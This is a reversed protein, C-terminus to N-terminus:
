PQNRLRQRTAETSYDLWGREIVNRCRAQLADLVKLRAELAERHGPDAALAMETLHLAEVPQGAQVHERARKVVADPGGALRVVDGYVASAPAEYMTAPNLDFWGAYGEYIGRVSWTLRGYGEGVDLEPPLKVERMLTYVDKGANMGRVVADHVYQVADRYRTLLKTIEANGHVPLGHSPLLIEPRLALVRDLSRVYDLAMRPQTGRLTYLNPFSRYFNDGVFAARYKPVWVTAHDPTEGPTHYVEFKVGGLEFEYKDDFLITAEIKAGYNGAWPGVKPRPRAFQAANRLGFFGELRKQYHMFEVHQRQAVVQTDKDKWVPVGGTHDGHGHTLIIYRVPGANEAQLLKKHRPAHMALSTDIVVNGDKTVVLFTNGFGVAQYIAEHVRLAKKQDQGYQFLDVPHDFFPEGRPAEPPTPPAPPEKRPEPRTEAAGGKLHEDFWAVALKQAQARAPGYIGYHTIGPIVVLKKPGLARQHAKVAHDKNDFLEEKEAIVFLMACGPAKDADEVPAYQLLKERLPAGRLNQVVRAGPKPYGIEGRARQTAERYTLAQEKPTQVVWRSDLAPVQSVTAKVRADRAAAYVVHGGSYSSGWLGIKAADCQPEGHVWHIVNLLDTTQELPDVVERVEEVEATFRTGPRDRPAPKTLIVRGDSAGWGRYDFTVVLYGARAFALADPRLNAAVGGWGHCMVVTPVKKGDLTKLSFLEATLRTGESRVDQQRWHIDDPAQFGPQGNATPPGFVALFLFAGAGGRFRMRM